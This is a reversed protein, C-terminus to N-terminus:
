RRWFRPLFLMFVTFLELRGLWMCIILIIKGAGPLLAYNLAPGVKDLGPGVNGLTAAVASISTELNLGLFSLIISAVAAVLLYLFVFSVIDRTIEESLPKQNYKVPIVAKPSIARRMMVKSHKLLTLARVVKIAGGTSGGCGGVFMLALLVMRASFHWSGFDCTVFGTTTM